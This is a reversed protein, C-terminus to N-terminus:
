SISTQTHTWSSVKNDTVAGELKERTQSILQISSLGDPTFLPQLLELVIDPVAAKTREVDNDVSGAGLALAESRPLHAPVPFM